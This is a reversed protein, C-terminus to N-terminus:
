HKQEFRNFHCITTLPRKPVHLQDNEDLYYHVGADTTEAADESHPTEDPYGLAVVSNIEYGGPISFIERISDRQIAGLWCSGIGKACAALLITQIAAAADVPALNGAAIDTRVLVIIYAVPRRNAPPNRKPQVYAAWALQEFLSEKKAADEVIIYELPQRNAGSPSLRALDV